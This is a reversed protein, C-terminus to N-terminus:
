IEHASINNDKHILKSLGAMYFFIPQLTLFGNEQFLRIGMVSVFNSFHVEFKNITKNDRSSTSFAGSEKRDSFLLYFILCKRDRIQICIKRKRNDIRKDSNM